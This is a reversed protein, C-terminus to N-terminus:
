PRRRSGVPRHAPGFLRKHHEESEEPAVAREDVARPAPHYVHGRQWRDDLRILFEDRLDEVLQIELM